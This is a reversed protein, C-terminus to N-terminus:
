WHSAMSCSHLQSGLFNLGSAFSQPLPIYISHTKQTFDSGVPYVAKIYDGSNAVTSVFNPTADLYDVRHYAYRVGRVPKVDVSVTQQNGSSDTTEIMGKGLDTASSPTFSFDIEDGTVFSDTLLTSTGSSNLFVVQVASPDTGCGVIRVVSARDAVLDVFGDNNIDVNDVAQSVSSNCSPGGLITLSDIDGHFVVQDAATAPLSSVATITFQATSFASLGPLRTPLGLNPLIGSPGSLTMVLSTVILNSINLGIGPVGPLSTDDELILSDLGPTKSVVIRYIDNLGGMDAGPGIFGMGGPGEQHNYQALTSSLFSPTINPDYAAFVTFRTGVGVTPPM